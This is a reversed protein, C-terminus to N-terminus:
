CVTVISLRNLYVSLFRPFLFFQIFTDSISKIMNYHRGLFLSFSRQIGPREALAENEVDILQNVDLLASVPTIQCWISTKMRILRYKGDFM